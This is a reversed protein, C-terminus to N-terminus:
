IIRFMGPADHPRSKFGFRVYYDRLGKAAMLGVFTGPAANDTIFRMLETMLSTGVGRHRYEPLVLLDQIYFYLGGDGTVRGLGVVNGSDVAVACFLSNNLATRTAADDTKQWGAATRLKAYEATTPIRHEIKVKAEKSKSEKEQRYNLIYILFHLADGSALSECSDGSTFNM